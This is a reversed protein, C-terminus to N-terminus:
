AGGKRPSLAVRDVSPRLTAQPIATGAEPRGPTRSM